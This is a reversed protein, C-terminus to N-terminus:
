EEAFLRENLHLWIEETFPNDKFSPHRRISEYESLFLHRGFDQWSFGIEWRNHRLWQQLVNNSFRHERQIADMGHHHLGGKLLHQHTALSQAAVMLHNEFTDPRMQLEFHHRNLFELHLRNRKGPVKKYSTVHSLSVWTVANKSPGNVPLYCTHGYAYPSCTPRKGEKTRNLSRMVEYTIGVKKFIRDMIANTTEATRLVLGDDYFVLTAAEGWPLYDQTNLVCFIHHDLPINGWEESAALYKEVDEATCISFYSSAEEMGTSSGLLNDSRGPGALYDTENGPVCFASAEHQRLVQQAEQRLNECAWYRDMRPLPRRSRNQSFHLQKSELRNWLDGEKKM